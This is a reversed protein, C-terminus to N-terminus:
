RYCIGCATRGQAKADSLSIATGKGKLSQCDQKHYKTGTAGIYVTSGTTTSVIGSKVESDSSYDSSNNSVESYVPTTTTPEIILTTTETTTFTTTITTIETTIETTTETTAETTSEITTEIDQQMSSSSCGFTLALMLVSPFLFLTKKM